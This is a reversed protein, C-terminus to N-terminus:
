MCVSELERTLFDKHYWSLHDLYLQWLASLNLLLSLLKTTGVQQAAHRSVGARKDPDRQPVVAQHCGAGDAAPRCVQVCCDGSLLWLVCCAPPWVVCSLM